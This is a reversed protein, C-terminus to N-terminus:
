AVGINRALTDANPHIEALPQTKAFDVVALGRDLEGAGGLNDGWGSWFINFRLPHGDTEITM